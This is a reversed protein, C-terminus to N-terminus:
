CRLGSSGGRCHPSISVANAPPGREGTEGACVPWRSSASRMLTRAALISRKHLRATAVPPLRHCIPGRRCRSLCAFVTATPQSWNGRGWFPLSLPPPELGDSAKCFNEMASNKSESRSACMSWHATRISGNISSESRSGDMARLTGIARGSRRLRAGRGRDDPRADDADGHLLPGQSQCTHVDEDPPRGLGPLRALRLSVVVVGAAAHHPQPM